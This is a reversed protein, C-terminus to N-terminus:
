ITSKGGPSSAWLSKINWYIFFLGSYEKHYKTVIPLPFILLCKSHLLLYHPFSKICLIFNRVLVRTIIWRDVKNMTSMRLYLHKNLRWDNSLIIVNWTYLWPYINKTKPSGNTDSANFLNSKDFNFYYLIQPPINQSVALEFFKKKKKM